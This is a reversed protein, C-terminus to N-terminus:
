IRPWLALFAIVGAGILARMGDIHSALSGPWATESLLLVLTIYAGWGIVNFLWGAFSNVMHM